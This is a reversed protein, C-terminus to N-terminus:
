PAVPMALLDALPGDLERWTKVCRVRAGVDCLASEISVLRTATALEPHPRPPEAETWCVVAGGVERACFSDFPDDLAILQAARLGEVDFPAGREDPWPFCSVVGSARRVCAGTRGHVAVEEADALGSFRALREIAPGRQRWMVLAGARDVVALHAESGDEGAIARASTLGDPLPHPWGRVEEGTQAVIQAPTVALTAGPGGIPLPWGDVAVAQGFQTGCCRTPGERHRACTLGTVAVIADVDSPGAMAAVRGAGGDQADRCTAAPDGACVVAGDALRACAHSWGAAVEVIPAPLAHLPPREAPLLWLGATAAAAVVVRAPWRGVFAVALALAPLPATWRLLALAPEEPATGAALLAAVHAVLLVVAAPRSAQGRRWTVVLRVWIALYIAAVIAAIVLAVIAVLRMAEGFNDAAEGLARAGSGDCPATLAVLLLLPGRVAM